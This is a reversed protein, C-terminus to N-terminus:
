PSRTGRKGTRTRRTGHQQCVSDLDLRCRHPADRLLEDLGHSLLHAHVMFFIDMQHGLFGDRLDGHLRRAFGVLSDRARVRHPRHPDVVM